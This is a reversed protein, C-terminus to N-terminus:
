GIPQNVSQYLPKNKNFFPSNSNKYLTEFLKLNTIELNLIVLAFHQNDGDGSPDLFDGPTWATTEISQDAGM